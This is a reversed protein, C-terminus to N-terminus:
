DPDGGITLTNSDTGAFVIKYNFPQPQTTVSTAGVGGTVTFTNSSARWQQGPVQYWVTALGDAAPDVVVAVDTQAGVVRYQTVSASVAPAVPSLTVGQSVGGRFEVRYELLRSPGTVHTSGSGDVIAFTNSSVRWVGAPVRFWVRAQGSSAPDVSVSLLESTGPVVDRALAGTVSVVPLQPTITVANSTAGGFDVRYEFVASQVTVQTVGSGDAVAFTNSSKTWEGGPAKFWVWAWGSLEPDVSVSLDTKVGPVGVSAASATVTPVLPSISVGSSYGGGFVVRYEITRSPSTVQTSGVGDSVVFSNTSRTWVGGPLRYDVWATGSLAPDVSVELSTMTGAVRTLEAPGVISVVPVEPSMTVVNSYTAGVRVRYERVGISHVVRSGVGDSLVVGPSARLWGGGDTRFWLEAEGSVGPSVSVSLEQSSGPVYGSVGSLELSVTSTGGGAVVMFTGDGAPWGSYLVAGGSALVRASYSGAPVDSFTYVSGPRSGCQRFYETDAPESVLVVCEATGSYTLDDLDIVADGPDPISAPNGYDAFVQVGWTLGSDDQYTGIGVHTWRANLMNANHGPSERWQEMLKLYPSSYGGNVAINEGVSEWGSPVQSSMAPNHRFATNIDQSNAFDASMQEAWGQAVASLDKHHILRDSGYLDRYDNTGRLVTEFGVDTEDEVATATAAVGVCALAVLLASAVARRAVTLM